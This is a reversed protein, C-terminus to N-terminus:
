NLHDAPSFYNYDHAGSEHKPPAASYRRKCLSKTFGQSSELVRAASKTSAVTEAVGKAPANKFRQGGIVFGRLQM